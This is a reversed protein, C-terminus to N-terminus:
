PAFVKVCDVRFNPRTFTRRNALLEEFGPVPKGTISYALCGRVTQALEGRDALTGYALLADRLVMADVLGTIGRSLLLDLGSKLAAVNAEPTPAPLHQFM